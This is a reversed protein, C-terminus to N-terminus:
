IEEDDALLTLEFTNDAVQAVSYTGTIDSKYCFNAINENVPSVTDKRNYKTIKVEIGTTLISSFHREAIIKDQGQFFLVLQSCNFLEMALKNVRFRYSNQARASPNKWIRVRPYKCFTNDGQPM